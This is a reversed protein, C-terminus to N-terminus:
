AFYNNLPAYAVAEDVRYTLLYPGQTSLTGDLGLPVMFGEIPDGDVDRLKARDGNADLYFSGENPMYEYWPGRGIEVKVVMEYYVQGNYYEPFGTEARRYRVYHPAYGMWTDSNVTQEYTTNLDMAVQYSNVWTKSCLVAITQDRQRPPLQEGNANVLPGLTNTGRVVLGDVFLDLNYGQYKYIQQGEFEVWKQPSRLTPQDRFVISDPQEGAVAIGGGIGGSSNPERWTVDVLWETRISKNPMYARFDFAYVSPDYLRSGNFTLDMIEGYQPLHLDNADDAILRAFEIVNAGPMPGDTQVRYTCHHVWPRTGTMEVEPPHMPYCHVVSSM